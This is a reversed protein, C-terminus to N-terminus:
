QARPKYPGLEKVATEVFSTDLIREVTERVKADAEASVAARQGRKLWKEM